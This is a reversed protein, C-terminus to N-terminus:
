GRMGRFQTFFWVKLVRNTVPSVLRVNEDTASCCALLEDDPQFALQGPMFDMPETLVLKQSTPFFIAIEGKPTVFALRGSEEDFAIASDSIIDETELLATQRDVDWVELKSADRVRKGWAVYRGNAAFELRWLIAGPNARRFLAQGTSTQRVVVEQAAGYTAVREGSSSMALRPKAQLPLEPLGIVKADPLQLAAIAENWLATLDERGLTLQKALSAAEAVLAMQSSRGGEPRHIRRTQLEALLAQYLRRQSEIRMQSERDEASMARLAHSEANDRAVRLSRATLSAGVAVGVVLLAILTVLTAAVPNRRGALQVRGFWSTRRAAIPRREFFRQLDESFARATAYRDGPEISTAKLVITELDLPITADM